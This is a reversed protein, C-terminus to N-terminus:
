GDRGLRVPVRAIVESLGSKARFPATREPDKIIGRTTEGFRDQKGMSACGFRNRAENTIAEGRHSGFGHPLASPGDLNDTYLDRVGARRAM